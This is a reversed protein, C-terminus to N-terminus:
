SKKLKVPDNDDHFSFYGLHLDNSINELNKAQVVPPFSFGIFLSFSILASFSTFGEQRFYSVCFKTMESSLNQM